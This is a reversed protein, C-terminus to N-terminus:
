AAPLPLQELAAGDFAVESISMVDAISAAVLPTFWSICTGLACFLVGYLQLAGSTGGAVATSVFLRIVTSQYCLLQLPMAPFGGIRLRHSVIYLIFTKNCQRCCSPSPRFQRDQPCSSCKSIEYSLQNSLLHYSKSEQHKYRNPMVLVLTSRNYRTSTSKKM